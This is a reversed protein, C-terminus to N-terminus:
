TPSWTPWVILSKSSILMPKFCVQRFCNWKPSCTGIVLIVRTNPFRRIAAVIPDIYETKYQNVGGTAIALEGNSAAAACDRDPLDYVVATMAIPPSAGARNQADVDALYQEFLPIKARTDRSVNRL